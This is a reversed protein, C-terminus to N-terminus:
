KINRQILKKDYLEYVKDCKQLISIKHSIFLITRDGKIKNVTDMFENETQLDLSNTSEDFILVQANRYLARAIGLRQIQGGSLNIGNEGVLTDVGRDLSNVFELLRADELSQIIKASDIEELKKGFAINQKISEDNLYISQPVYSINKRWLAKHISIDKDDFKISGSDLTLLGSFLDVFTTKGTGSKGFIGIYEGKKIKLNLDKIIPNKSTPFKFNLNNIEISQINQSIDYNKNKKISVLEDLNIDKYISDIVPRVAKISNYSTIIRNLSPMIRFAAAAFIGLLIILDSFEQENYIGILSLFVFTSITILELIHRTINQWSHISGMVQSWLSTIGSFKEMFNNEKSALKIDKIGQLGQYIQQQLSNNLGLRNVGLKKLKKGFFYLLVFMVTSISITVKIASEADYYLLFGFILLITFTELIILLFPDLVGMVFYEVETKIVNSKEYVKLQIFKSYPLNLYNGMLRNSIKTYFGFLVKYRIFNLVISVTTKIFFILFLFTISYLIFNEENLFSFNKLLMIIYKSEVFSPDALVILVPLIAGIGVLDLFSVISTIFLLIFFKKKQSASLIHNIKKITNM